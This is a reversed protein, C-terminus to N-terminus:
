DRRGVVRRAHRHRGPAPGRAPKGQRRAPCRRLYARSASPRRHKRGQRDAGPRAQRGPHGLNRSRRRSAQRNKGRSSRRAPGAAARRARRRGRRGKRETREYDNLHISVNYTTPVERDGFEQWSQQPKAGPTRPWKASRERTRSRRPLLRDAGDLSLFPVGASHNGQDAHGIQRRGGPGESVM